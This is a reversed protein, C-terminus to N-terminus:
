EEIVVETNNAGSASTIPTTISYAELKENQEQKVQALEDDVNDIFPVQALLTRDSVVGRLGNILTTYDDVNEPLNRTFIIDIDRWTMDTLNTIANILEIRRQLAQRM